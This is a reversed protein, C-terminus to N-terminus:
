QGAGAPAAAKPVTIVVTRNNDTLYKKAVRQVDALTVKAYAADSGNIMEPNNFNVAFEGIGIARNLTGQLSQIHNVRDRTITKALEEATVGDKKIREIDAEIAKEVDTPAVGPKM